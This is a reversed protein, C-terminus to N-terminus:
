LDLNRLQRENLGLYHGIEHLLVTEIRDEIEERSHCGREIVKKFLVIRDPMVLSYGPKRKSYPIGHYIGLLNPASGEEVQFVVNDINRHLIEPLRDLKESVIKEFDERTLEVSINYCM